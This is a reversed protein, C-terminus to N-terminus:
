RLLILTKTAEFRGARLRCLYIGSAVRTGLADSGDWFVSIPFENARPQAQPVHAKPASDSIREGEFLTKVLRGSLDYVKVSIPEGSAFGGLSSFQFNSISFQVTTTHTFPNPYCQVLRAERSKSRAELSEEIGVWSYRSFYVDQDGNRNDSWACYGWASDAVVAIYDGIFSRGMTAQDTVRLNPGFSQGRDTSKAYYVDLDLGGSRTDYWVAHIDGYPDVCIWPMFQWSSDGPPNDNVVIPVSFTSGADTSRTLLVDLSGFITDNWVIYVDGNTQSVAMAPIGTMRWPTSAWTFYQDAVRVNPGFSAGGDTSKALYIGEPSTRDDMGWSVYIEGGPGPVPMSGNRGSLGPNDNVRVSAEFTQGRDSSRAFRIDTGMGFSAFTVYLSEGNATVWDKDEFTTPTNVSALVPIGWTQGGDTSRVVYIDSEWGYRDFSLMAVYVYGSDDVAVAPDGQEPFTPETLLQNPTWTDGSNTSYSFGVHYIGERQDNWALYLNEGFIGMSTENQSLTDPDDSVKINPIWPPDDRPGGKPIPQVRDGEVLPPVSLYRGLGPRGRDEAEGRGPAFSFLMLGGLFGAMWRM